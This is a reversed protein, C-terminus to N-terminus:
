IASPPYLGEYKLATMIQVIQSNDPYKRELDAVLSDLSKLKLLAERDGKKAKERLGLIKSRLEVIARSTTLQRYVLVKYALLAGLGGIIWWM